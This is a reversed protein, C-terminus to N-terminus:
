KEKAVHTYIRSLLRSPGESSEEDSWEDDGENGAIGTRDVAAELQLRGEVGDSQGTPPATWTEQVQVCQNLSRERRSYTLTQWPRGERKRLRREGERM